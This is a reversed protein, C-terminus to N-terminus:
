VASPALVQSGDTCIWYAKRRMLNPNILYNQLLVELVNSCFPILRDFIQKRGIVHGQETCFFTCRTLGRKASSMPHRLFSSECVGGGGGRAAINRKCYPNLFPLILPSISSPHPHSHRRSLQSVIQHSGERGRSLVRSGKPETLPQLRWGSPGPVLM